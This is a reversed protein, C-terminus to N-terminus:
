TMVSFGDSAVGWFMMWFHSSSYTFISVIAYRRISSLLFAEGINYVDSDAIRPLMMASRSPIASGPNNPIKPLLWLLFRTASTYEHCVDMIYLIASLEDEGLRWCISSRGDNAPFTRGYQGVKPLTKEAEEIIQKVASILWVALKRKEVFRMQKLLKGISVIDGSPLKKAADVSKTVDDSASRHHSCAIRSECVHSTSAGQSGEIRAAALQALSQTKRVSKQRSRTTQKLPKPPPEAKFSDIYHLGKKIWWIEEDEAPNIQLIMDESLKQRKVRKCEECGSTEEVGDTRNYVGGPRKISVQSEEVGTDASSSTNPFQLLTAISAKVEELKIDMDADTSLKSTAQFYWQDVSSPSGSGNESMHLHRRKKMVNRVGPTFKSAGLLGDLLLRRENSYVNMAENLIPPEVLQAEELADCIYSAPLQKLLKYHRKRKDLNVTPGTGDMIGSVILQRGYALPNFIGSRMLERVLLQLRMFGERNHVEHQDIWCVIVDHLLSPSEFINVSDKSKQKSSYLTVMKLKLLRIAIFIHSFDRRGTFKLGHPPGARFDRFECTAWECILFISCLLSPTVMGIHKLSTLLCPCVEASWHETYIEDWTNELLLNSSVGVDGHMLAQDLVQLAKAVNHGPHNPRAARSLTESRKQISSVVSLFSFSDAQVDHNRDRLVGSGEIHGSKVKRAGEAMKSLFSGDNAVHSIVCAPLPFCDLAVFTDPVALVLYRLMEVVAATTYARRSNDVLDSGGPSPEQIFRVAIGVLTRVYTQSSVVTEIVGYVIPLLLQLVILLEKEQMLTIDHTTDYFSLVIM